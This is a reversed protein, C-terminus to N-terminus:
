CLRGANWNVQYIAPREPNCVVELDSAAPDTARVDSVVADISGIKIWDGPKIQPADRMTRLRRTTRQLTVGASSPAPRAIADLANAMAPARRNQPGHVRTPQWARVRSSRVAGRVLGADRGKTVRGRGLAVDKATDHVVDNRCHSKGWPM